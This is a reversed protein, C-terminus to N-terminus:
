RQRPPGRREGRPEGSHGGGRGAPPAFREQVARRFEDHSLADLRAIEDESALGAERLVSVVRGRAIRAVFERREPTALEAYRLHDASRPRAAEFLRRQAQSRAEDQRPRRAEQEGRLKRVAEWRESEPLALIREIEAPALGHKRALMEALRGRGHEREGGRGRQRMEGLVREREEAPLRELKARWAEPGAGSWLAIREGGEALALDRLLERRREPDLRAIRARAGDDLQKEVDRMAEGLRRAREALADRDDKPMARWSEYRERVRAQEAPTLREWRERAADLREATSSAGDDQPRSAGHTQASASHTQAVASHPQAFASHSRAAAAGPLLTVVILVFVHLANM